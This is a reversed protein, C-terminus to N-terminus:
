ACAARRGQAARGALPVRYLSAGGPARAARRAAGRCVARRVGRRATAAPTPQRVPRLDRALARNWRVVRGDLDEVVLGDDLSEVINENFEQLRQLEGAKLQLQRYLRGNELATAVHSGVASLLGMDESSLPEGQDASASRSCPSREARRCARCSTTCAACGGSRSRKRRFHATCGRITSRCRWAAQWARRLRRSGPRPGSVTSM